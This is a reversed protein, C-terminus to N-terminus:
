KNALRLAQTYFKDQMNRWLPRRIRLLPVPKTVEHNGDSITLLGMKAALKGEGAIQELGQKITETKAERVEEGIKLTIHYMLNLKQTKIKKDTRALARAVRGVIM